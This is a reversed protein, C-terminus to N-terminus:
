SKLADISLFPPVPSVGNKKANNAGQADLGAESLAGPFRRKKRM